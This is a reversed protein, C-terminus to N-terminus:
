CHWVGKGGGGREFLNARGAAAVGAVVATAIYDRLTIECKTKKM